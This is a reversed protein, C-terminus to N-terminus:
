GEITVSSNKKYKYKNLLPLVKPDLKIFIYDVLKVTVYGLILGAIVDIVWHIELYMTSYIVSLCYIGWVWKFIKDKERLVLLFMAFAISTHMSPFCNLTVGAAQTHTLGRALGDPHGLVYWVEQLRFIVYFPTILFVQIVHGSLTYRLMKKFDRCIAARYMPLTLAFAFGTNYILRFYWTLEKTKFVRAFAADNLPISKFLDNINFVVKLKMELKIMKGWFAYGHSEIYWIFIFFPICLILFPIVNVDHRIDKYATFAAFGLLFLYFKFTVDTDYILAIIACCLFIIGIFIFYHKQLFEVIKSKKNLMKEGGYYSKAYVM